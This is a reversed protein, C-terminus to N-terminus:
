SSRHHPAASLIFPNQNGSHSPTETSSSSPSPTSSPTPALTESAEAQSSSAPTGTAPHLCTDWDGEPPLQSDRAYLPWAYRLKLAEDEHKDLLHQYARFAAVRQAYPLGSLEATIESVLSDATLATM